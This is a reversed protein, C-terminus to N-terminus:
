KNEDGGSVIIKYLESSCRDISYYKKFLDKMKIPNSVGQTIFLNMINIYEDERNAEYVYDSSLVEDYGVLSEKSAIIPIGIKLAEAIKVKMGAGHIIPSIFISGQPIIDSVNRFNPIIKINEITKYEYIKSDPRSGAIILEVNNNEKYNKIWINELFWIIGEVNPPYWLSALFVFTTKSSKIKLEEDDDELCIPIINSKSKINYLEYSRNEDRKTLFICEDSYKLAQLEDRKVNGKEVKTFLYSKIKNFKKAYEDCYDYEINDFHTIIKGKYGSERMSKAIFGLRSNSLVIVDYNRKLIIDKNKKWDIYMFNSHGLLRSFVDSEISKFAQINKESIIEKENPSYLDLKIDLNLLSLYINESCIGGGSKDFKNPTIYLVKM